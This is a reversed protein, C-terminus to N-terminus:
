GDASGSACSAGCRRTRRLPRLRSRDPGLSGPQEQRRRGLDLALQFLRRQLPTAKAVGRLIRQYMAEYLRPVATMITPRVEVMDETLKEVSEAYYIQAGITM